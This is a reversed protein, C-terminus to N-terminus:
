LLALSLTIIGIVTITGPLMLRGSDTRFDTVDILINATQRVQLLNLWAESVQVLLRLPLSPSSARQTLQICSSSNSGKYQISGM